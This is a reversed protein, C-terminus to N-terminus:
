GEPEVIIKSTRALYLGIFIIGAGLIKTPTLPEDLFLAAGLTAIVPTLNNYIATRAGGLRKVGANWIIYAIVIAFIASYALGAWSGLSVSAWDQNVLAPLGIIFLPIAGFITSLATFSLPSYRKLLPVSLVSYLAWCFTACLVLGDGLLTQADLAFNGGSIIVLTIGFFSLGIGLWGRQPFRERGLVRNLLVIFAPTCAVILASNSAETLALGNIFLLQYLTTGIVGALAVRRWAARPIQFGGQRVRVIAFLLFAALVFRLAAFAVPSIQLLTTKVIIFNMGWILTMALLALDTLGFAMQSKQESTAGPVANIIESKEAMKILRVDCIM